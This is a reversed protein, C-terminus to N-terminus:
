DRRNAIKVDLAIMVLVEFVGGAPKSAEDPHLSAVM